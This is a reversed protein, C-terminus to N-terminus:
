EGTLPAQLEPRCPQYNHGLVVRYDYASTEGEGALRIDGEERNLIWALLWSFSGKLNSGYYTVQTTAPTTGDGSGYVPVFGHRSLNDAALQYMIWNGDSIVEVTIPARNARNLVPPQMLAALVPEAQDWQLLQVSAGSEPERWARVPGYALYLQQIGNERIQPALGALPLMLPLTMDTEVSDRYAQWLDPLQPLLSRDLGTQLIARLVQQQRRGREFDNTTRRSRVYWLALDGDMVYIGPELAFQEWNEEVEPDLDPEKLRWDELPCSVAVEVGGLADVVQKFGEFGIRAYYDVPIGFNYLITDKVLQGGGGPYEAGHGHPLVQNIRAMKWDPVYVYLDRPISLMTATATDANISVLVMSDTRGGQRYPADNGLLLINTVGPPKEFTPVPTPITTAPTPLSDDLSAFPFPTETVTATATPTPTDTPSPTATATSTPKALTPIPTFTAPLARSPLSLVSSETPAVSSVAAVQVVEATVTATPAAETGTEEPLCAALLGLLLLLLLRALGPGAANGM